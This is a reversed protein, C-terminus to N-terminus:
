SCGGGIHHGTIAALYRHDAPGAAHEAIRAPALLAAALLHRFAKIAEELLATQRVDGRPPHVALRHDARRAVFATGAVPQQKGELRALVGGGGQFVQQLDEILQQASGLGIGAAAYSRGM